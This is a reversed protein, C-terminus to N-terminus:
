EPGTQRHESSERPQRSERPSFLESQSFLTKSLPICHFLCYLCSSSPCHHVIVYSEYQCRIFQSNTSLHQDHNPSAVANSSAQQKSSASSAAPQQQSTPQPRQKSSASSSRSQRGLKEASDTQQLKIANCLQTVAVRSNFSLTSRECDASISTAQLPWQIGEPSSPLFDKWNQKCSNPKCGSLYEFNMCDTSATRGFVYPYALIQFSVCPLVYMYDPIYICLILSICPYVLVYFLSLSVCPLIYM